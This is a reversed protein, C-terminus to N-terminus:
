EDWHKPYTPNIPKNSTVDVDLKALREILEYAARRIENPHYASVRWRRRHLEAVILRRAEIYDMGMAGMTDMIGCRAEFQLRIGEGVLGM